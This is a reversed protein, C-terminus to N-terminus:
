YSQQMIQDNAQQNELLSTQMNETENAQKSKADSIM